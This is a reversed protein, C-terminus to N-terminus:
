GSIKGLKRAKRRTARNGVGGTAQLVASEFAVMLNRQQARKFTLETLYDATHALVEDVSLLKLDMAIANQESPALQKVANVLRKAREDPTMTGTRQNLPRGTGSLTGYVAPVSQSPVSSGCHRISSDGM